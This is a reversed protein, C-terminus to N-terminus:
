RLVAKWDARVVRTRHHPRFYRGVRRARVSRDYAGTAGSLSAGMRLTVFDAARCGRSGSASIAPPSTECRGERKWPSEIVFVAREADGSPLSGPSPCSERILM